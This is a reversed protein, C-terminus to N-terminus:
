RFFLFLSIQGGRYPGSRGFCDCLGFFIEAAQVLHVDSNHDLTIPVRLKSPQDGITVCIAAPEERSQTDLTRHVARPLLPRLEGSEDLLTSAYLTPGDTWLAVFGGEIAFVGLM